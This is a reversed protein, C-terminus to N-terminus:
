GQPDSPFTRAFITPSLAATLSRGACFLPPCTVRDAQEVCSVWESSPIPSGAAGRVESPPQPAQTKRLEQVAPGLPLSSSNVRCHPLHPAPIPCTQSALAIRRHGSFERKQRANGLPMYCASIAAGPAADIAGLSKGNSRWRSDDRWAHLRLTPSRLQGTLSESGMTGSRSRSDSVAAAPRFTLGAKEWSGAGIANSRRSSMAM